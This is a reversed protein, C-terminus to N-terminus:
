DMNTQKSLPLTTRLAISARCGDCRSVVQCSVSRLIERIQRLHSDRGMFFLCKSQVSNTTTKWKNIHTKNNVYDFKPGCSITSMYTCKKKMQSTKAIQFLRELVIFMKKVLSFPRYTICQNNTKLQPPMFGRRDRFLPTLGLGKM